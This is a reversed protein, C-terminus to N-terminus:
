GGSAVRIAEVVDGKKFPRTMPVPKGDLLYLFADPHKGASIMSGEITAGDKVSIREKGIVITAAMADEVSPWYLDTANLM